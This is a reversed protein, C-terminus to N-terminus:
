EIKEMHTQSEHDFWYMGEHEHADVLFGFSQCDSLSEDSRFPTSDVKGNVHLPQPTTSFFGTTAGVKASGARGNTITIERSEHPALHFAFISFVPRQYSDHCLLGQLDAFRRAGVGGEGYAKRSANPINILFDMGSLTQSHIRFKLQSAYLDKDSRNTFRFSYTQGAADKDAFRVNTPSVNLSYPWLTWGFAAIGVAVFSLVIRRSLNSHLWPSHLTPHISCAFIAVSIAVTIVRGTNDASFQRALLFFVLAIVSALYWLAVDGRSTRGEPM